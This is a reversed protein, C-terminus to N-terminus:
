EQHMGLVEDFSFGFVKSEDLGHGRPDGFFLSMDIGQSGADPRAGAKDDNIVAGSNSTPEQTLTEALLSESFEDVREFERSMQMFDTNPAGTMSPVSSSGKGSSSAEKPVEQKESGPELALKALTVGEEQEFSELTQHKEAKETLIPLVRNMTNCIVKVKESKSPGNGRIWNSVVSQSVGTLNHITRQSIWPIKETLQKTRIRTEVMADPEASSANSTEKKGKSGAAAGSQERQSPAKKLSSATDTAADMAAGSDITNDTSNVTAKEAGITYQAGLQSFVDFNAVQEKGRGKPKPQSNKRKMIGLIDSSSDRNQPPASEPTNMRNQAGAPEVMAAPDGVSARQEPVPGVGSLLQQLIGDADSSEQKSISAKRQLPGSGFGKAAGGKVTGGSPRQKLPGGRGKPAPKDQSRRRGKSESTPKGVKEVPKPENKSALQDINADRQPAEQASKITQMQLNMANMLSEANTSPQDKQAGRARGRSSKHFLDAPQMSEGEPSGRKQTEAGDGSVMGDLLFRLQDGQAVSTPKEEQLKNGISSAVQQASAAPNQFKPRKTAASGGQQKQRSNGQPQANQQQKGQPLQAFGQWQHGAQGVAGVQGLQVPQGAPGPQVPQGPLQGTQQPQQGQQEKQLQQGMQEHRHRELQRQIEGSYPQPNQSRPTRPQLQSGGKGASLMATPDTHVQKTPASARRFKLPDQSGDAASAQQQKQRRGGRKEAVPTEPKAKGTMMAALQDERSQKATAQGKSSQESGIAEPKDFISGLIAMESISNFTKSKRLDDLQSEETKKGRGSGEATKRQGGKQQKVQLSGDSKMRRLTSGGRQGKQKVGLGDIIDQAKASQLGKEVPPSAMLTEKGERGTSFDEWHTNKAVEPQQRASLDFQPLQRGSSAELFQKLMQEEDSGMMNERSQTTAQSQLQGTGTSDPMLYDSFNVPGKQMLHQQINQAQSLSRASTVAPTRQPDNAGAGALGAQKPTEHEQRKSSAPGQAHLADGTQDPLAQPTTASAQKGGKPKRTGNKRSRAAPKRSSGRGKAKSGASLQTSATSIEDSNHSTEAHTLAAQPHSSLQQQRGISEEHPVSAQAPTNAFTINSGDAPARLLQSLQESEHDNVSGLLVDLNDFEMDADDQFFSDPAPQEEFSGAIMQAPREHVPKM